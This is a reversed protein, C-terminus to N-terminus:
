HWWGAAYGWIFHMVFIFFIMSIYAMVPGRQNGTLDEVILAVFAPLALGWMTAGTALTMRASEVGKDYPVVKMIIVGTAIASLFVFVMSLQGARLSLSEGLQHGFISVLIKGLIVGGVIEGLAHWTFLIAFFAKVVKWFKGLDMDNKKFSKEELWGILRDQQMRVHLFGRYQIGDVSLSEFQKTTRLVQANKRPASRIPLGHHEPLQLAQLAFLFGEDDTATEGAIWSPLKWLRLNYQGSVWGSKGESTKVQYWDDKNGICPKTEKFKMSGVIKYTSAPGSYISVGKKARCEVVKESFKLFLGVLVSIGVIIVLLELLTFGKKVGTFFYRCDFVLPM